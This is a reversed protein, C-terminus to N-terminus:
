SAERNFTKGSLQKQFIAIQEIRMNLKNVLQNLTPQLDSVTTLTKKLASDNPKIEQSVVILKKVYNMLVVSDSSFKYLVSDKYLSDIKNKFGVLNKYYNDLSSKRALTRILLERMLKYSTELNQRSQVTGTNIFVGDITIDYWHEIKNLETSLGTTDLGNELYSEAELTLTRLEEIIEDQKRAITGENYENINKRQEDAGFQKISSFFKNVASDYNTKLSDVPQRSSCHGTSCHGAAFLCGSTTIFPM